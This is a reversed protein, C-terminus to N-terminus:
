LVTCVKRWTEKLEIFLPNEAQRMTQVKYDQDEVSMKSAFDRLMQAQGYARIKFSFAAKFYPM